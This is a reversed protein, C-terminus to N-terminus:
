EDANNAMSLKLVYGESHLEDATLTVASSTINYAIYSITPNDANVDLNRGTIIVGVSSIKEQYPYFVYTGSDDLTTPDGNEDTIDAAMTINKGTNANVSEGGTNTASYWAAVEIGGRGGDSSSYITSIREMATEVSRNPNKYDPTTADTHESDIKDALVNLSELISKAM